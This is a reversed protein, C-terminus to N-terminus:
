RSSSGPKCIPYRRSLPRGFGVPNRPSLDSGGGPESQVDRRFISRGNNAMRRPYTNEDRHCHEIREQTFAWLCALVKMSVCFYILLLRHCWTSLRAAACAAGGVFKRDSAHLRLDRCRGGVKIREVLEPQHRLGERVQDLGFLSFNVPPLSRSFVLSLLHLCIIARVM